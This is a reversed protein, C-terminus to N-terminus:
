GGRLDIADAPAKIRDRKTDFVELMVPFGAPSQGAFHRTTKIFKSTLESIVVESKANYGERAWDVRYTKVPVRGYLGTSELVCNRFVAGIGDVTKRRVRYRLHWKGLGQRDYAFRGIYTNSGLINIAGSPEVGYVRTAFNGSATREYARNIFDCSPDEGKLHESSRLGRRDEAPHDDAFVSQVFLAAAFFAAIRFSSLIKM